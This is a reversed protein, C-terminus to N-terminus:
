IADDAHNPTSSTLLAHMEEASTSSSLAARLEPERFLSALQALLNLHVETAHEPVLLAFVLNVPQNDAADFDLPKSLSMFIALTESLGDIRGHPLAVGAGIGTSGLNEREILKTFIGRASLDVAEGAFMGSLDELLCKKSTTSHGRVIHGVPLIDAISVISKSEMDSNGHDVNAHSTSM